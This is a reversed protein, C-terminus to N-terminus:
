SVAREYSRASHRSAEQLISATRESLCAETFLKIDNYTLSGSGGKVGSNRGTFVSLIQKSSKRASRGESKPIWLTISKTQDNKFRENLLQQLVCPHPISSRDERSLIRWENLSVSSGNLYSAHFLGQINNGFINKKDV